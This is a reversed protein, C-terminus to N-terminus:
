SDLSEFRFFECFDQGVQKYKASLSSRVIIITFAYDQSLQQVVESYDGSLEEFQWYVLCIVESTM